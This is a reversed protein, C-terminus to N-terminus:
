VFGFGFVVVFFYNQLLDQFYAEQNYNHIYDHRKFTKLPM